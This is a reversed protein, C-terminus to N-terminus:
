FQCGIYHGFVYADYPLVFNRLSFEVLKKNQQWFVNIEDIVAISDTSFINDKAKVLVDRYRTQLEKLEAKLLHVEM